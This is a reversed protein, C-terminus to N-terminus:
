FVALSVLLLGLWMSNKLANDGQSSSEGNDALNPPSSHASSSSNSLGFGLNACDAGFSCDQFCPFSSINLLNNYGQKCECRHEFASGRVCEGGGCFSWKCPDFFTSGDPPPPYPAPSPPASINSCSYNMSCNPMLCPLFRFHDEIHFQTWGSDCECQFGFTTDEAVKCSGKGCYVTKCLGNLVPSLLPSLFDGSVSSRQHLVAVAELALVLLVAFRGSVM